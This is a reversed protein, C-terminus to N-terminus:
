GRGDPYPVGRDNDIGGGGNIRDANIDNVKDAEQLWNSQKEVSVDKSQNKKSKINLKM